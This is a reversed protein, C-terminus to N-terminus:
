SKPKRSPSYTVIDTDCISYFVQSGFLVVQQSNDRPGRFYDVTSNFTRGRSSCSVSYPGRSQRDDTAVCHLINKADGLLEDSFHLYDTFNLVEDNGGAPGGAGVFQACRENASAGLTMAVLAASTGGLRFGAILFFRLIATIR